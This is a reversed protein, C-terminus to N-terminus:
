TRSGTFEDLVSPPMCRRVSQLGIHDTNYTYSNTNMGKKYNYRGHIARLSLGAASGTDTMCEVRTLKRRRSRRVRACSHPPQVRQLKPKCVVAIRLGDKLAGKDGNFRKPRERM